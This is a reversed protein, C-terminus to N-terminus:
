VLAEVIKNILGERSERVRPPGAGIEDQDYYMPRNNKQYGVASHGHEPYVDYTRFQPKEQAQRKRLKYARYAYTGATAGLAVAGLRLANRKAFMQRNAGWQKRRTDMMAAHNSAGTTPKVALGIRKGRRGLSTLVAHDTMRKTDNLLRHSRLMGRTDRKTTKALGWAAKAGAKAFGTAHKWAGVKELLEANNM